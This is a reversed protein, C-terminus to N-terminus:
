FFMNKSKKPRSLFSNGSSLNQQNKKVKGKMFKTPPKAGEKMGFIETRTRNLEFADIQKQLKNKELIDLQRQRLRRMSKLGRDRTEFDDLPPGTDQEMRSEKMQKIKDLIKEIVLQIM